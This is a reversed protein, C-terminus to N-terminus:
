ARGRNRLNNAIRVVNRRVMGEPAKTHSWGEFEIREAYPLNNTLFSEDKADGLKGALGALAADRGLSSTEGSEPAGISCQWNGALRGTDVPTDRIISGFLAMKVGKIVREVEKSQVTNFRAVDASFSM